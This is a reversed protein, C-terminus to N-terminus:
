YLLQCKSKITSKIIPIYQQNNEERLEGTEPGPIVDHQNERSTKKKRLPPLALPWCDNRTGGIMSEAVPSRDIGILQMVTDDLLV